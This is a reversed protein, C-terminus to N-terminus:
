KFANSNLKKADIRTVRKYAHIMSEPHKKIKKKDSSHSKQM